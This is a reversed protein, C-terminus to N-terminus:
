RRARWGAPTTGGFERFERSFHAQDAYGAEAAIEALPGAVASAAVSITAM